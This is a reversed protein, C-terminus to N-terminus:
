KVGRGWGRDRVESRQRLYYSYPREVEVREHRYGHDALEHADREAVAGRLVEMSAKAPVAFGRDCGPQRCLLGSRRVGEPM